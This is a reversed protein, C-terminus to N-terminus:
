AQEDQREDDNGKWKASGKGTRIPKFNPVMFVDGDASGYMLAGDPMTEVYDYRKGDPSITYEAPDGPGIVYTKM